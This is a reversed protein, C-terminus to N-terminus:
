SSKDKPKTVDDISPIFVNQNKFWIGRLFIVLHTFLSLHADLLDM